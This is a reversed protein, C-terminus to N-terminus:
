ELAASVALTGLGAVVGLGLELWPTDAQDGLWTSITWVAGAAILTLAIPVIAIGGRPPQGIGSSEAGIKAFGDSPCVVMGPSLVVGLCLKGNDQAGADVLAIALLVGGTVASGAGGWFTVKRLLAVSPEVHVSEEVHVGVNGGARVDVTTEYPELKPHRFTLKRAGAHAGEIAVTGAHTSGVIRGDVAIEIGETKADVTITGPLAVREDFIRAGLRDVILRRLAPALDEASRVEIAPPQEVVARGFVQDEFEEATGQSTREHLAAVERTDVLVLRLVDARETEGASLVMLFRPEAGPVSAARVALALCGLDVRCAEVSSNGEYDRLRYVSRERLIESITQYLASRSTEKMPGAPLLLVLALDEREDLVIQAAFTATLLLVGAAGM